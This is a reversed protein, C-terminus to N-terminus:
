NSRVGQFKVGSARIFPTVAGSAITISLEQDDTAPTGASDTVRITFNYTGAVTPTGSIVGTSGTLSLGTPLSGSYLSFTYPSTGGTASVTDSYSVGTTGSDLSSTTINLESSSYPDGNGLYNMIYHTLNEGDACFGRDGDVNTATYVRMKSRILDQNPFPWMSVGTDTNYGTEGWLTGSTGILTEINAGIDGSDDADGSLNSGSEIRTIYKLAGTPNTSANWIPNTTSQEHSNYTPPNQVIYYANYDHTEVSYYLDGGTVNNIICNKITTNNTEDAYSNFAIYQHSVDKFTCHNLITRYGRMYFTMAGHATTSEVDAFACNTFTVDDTNQGGGVGLGGIKSNVGVCNTFNIYQGHMDTAPCYFFGAYEEISGGLAATQDGDVAICNQVEGYTVSYISYFAINDTASSGDFRAVCNRFVLHNAQYGLFKYRGTGYAYCGEVLVYSCGRHIAMTASNAGANYAGCRLVKVYGCYTLLFANDGNCFILGEFQWYCNRLTSTFEIDVPSRTNQGDFIVAGDNRAKITTYAGASGFPPYNTTTLTNADGTYTGDEIILIDGGSMQSISYQLTLWPAGETGANGNSGTTAMYYTDAKAVSAILLFLFTFLLKKM